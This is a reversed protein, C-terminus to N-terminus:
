VRNGAPLYPMVGKFPIEGFIASVFTEMAEESLNYLHVFTSANIYFDYYVYPSCLSVGISKENGKTFAYFFTELEEDYFSPAGMPAHGTIFGAYVILDNQEVIEDREAFSSIRRQLRVNIGRKEFAKKMGELAVFAKERHTSCIIAVNKIKKEDLPLLNQEDCELTISKEAVEKNFARIEDILDDYHITDWEGFLGIKEKMDLVRQCADDIRSESIRGEKVAREIMDIYDYHKVNDIMDIGANLLEVYLDSPEPCVATLAAMDVSDSIAVGKFGFKEKILGTTVNYSITSPRYVKGYKRDDLAPFGVHSVMTSDAGNNLAKEYVHGMREYWEDYPITIAQPSFHGDRCDYPDCGPPHKITAAVHESHFGEVMAQAFELLKEPDNSVTRDLMVGCFRSAIDVEVGWVYRAGASKAIKAQLKGWRYAYEKANTAGISPVRALPLINTAFGPSIPDLGLLVPIRMYERLSLAWERYFETDHLTGGVVETLNTTNMCYNGNHWVNGIPNDKLYEAIDKRNMFWSMQMCATQGIKERLTLESLAPKKTFREM